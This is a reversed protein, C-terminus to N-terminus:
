PAAAAPTGMFETTTAHGQKSIGRRQFVRAVTLVLIRADLFLSQHDVYWVDFAFKQEWTLENRGSVQAWGTIGPLVDHRRAQESNYRPLYQMLLPRPGVLSMEGWLVNWLQPLEDISTTRLFQGLRTLRAGDPLPQGRPDRANTMTRFKVLVFPKGHLGPRQQRFLVPAGMRVRIAVAAAVLVPSAAVLTTSAAVVDFVRKLRLGLPVVPWGYAEPTVWAVADAGRARV